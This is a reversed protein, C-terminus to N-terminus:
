IFYHIEECFIPTFKVEKLRHACDEGCMEHLSVGIIPNFRLNHIFSHLEFFESFVRFFSPFFVSFGRM